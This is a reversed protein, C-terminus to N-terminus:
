KPSMLLKDGFDLRIGMRPAKHGGLGAAERALRARLSIEADHDSADKEFDKIV